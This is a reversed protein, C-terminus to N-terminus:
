RVRRRRAWLMAALAAGVALSQGDVAIACGENNRPGCQSEGWADNVSDLYNSCDDDNGITLAMIADAKTLLPTDHRCSNLIVTDGDLRFPAAFSPTMESATFTMPVLLVDGPQAGTHAAVSISQGVAIAGTEGHVSDVIAIVSNAGNETATAIVVGDSGYAQGCFCVQAVTYSCYSPQIRAAEAASLGASALWHRLGRDGALENVFANNRTRRVREVLDHEGTAEILHAVACRTGSEDVFYPTHRDFDRNTPFQGRRAYRELEGVLRERTNREPAALHSVDRANLEALVERFHARLRRQEILTAIGPAM